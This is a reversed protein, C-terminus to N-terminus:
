LERFWSQWQHDRLFFPAHRGAYLDKADELFYFSFFFIVTLPKHVDV